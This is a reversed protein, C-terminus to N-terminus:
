QHARGRSLRRYLNSPDALRDPRSYTSSHNPISDQGPSATPRRLRPVLMSCLIICCRALVFDLSPQPTSCQHTHVYPTQLSHQFRSGRASFHALLPVSRCCAQNGLTTHREFSVFPQRFIFRCLHFPTERTWFTIICRSIFCSM